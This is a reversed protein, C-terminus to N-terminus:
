NVRKGQVDGEVARIALHTVDGKDNVFHQRSKENESCVYELRDTDAEFVVRHQDDM